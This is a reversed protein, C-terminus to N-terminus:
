QGCSLRPGGGTAHFPCCAPFYGAARRFREGDFGAGGRYSGRCMREFAEVTARWQRMRADAEQSMCNDGPKVEALTAAVNEFHARTMRGAGPRSRNRYESM